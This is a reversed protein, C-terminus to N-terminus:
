RRKQTKRIALPIKKSKEKVNRGSISMAGLLNLMNKLM